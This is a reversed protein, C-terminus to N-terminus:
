YSKSHLDSQGQVRLVGVSVAVDMSGGCRTLLKKVKFKWKTKRKVKLVIKTHNRSYM